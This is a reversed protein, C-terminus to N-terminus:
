ILLSFLLPLTVTFVKYFVNLQLNPDTEKFKMTVWVHKLSSFGQRAHDFIVNSLRLYTM